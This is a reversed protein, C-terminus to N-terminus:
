LHIWDGYSKALQGADETSRRVTEDGLIEKYYIGETLQWRGDSRWTVTQRLRGQQPLPAEVTVSAQGTRGYPVEPGTEDGCGSALVGVVLLLPRAAPAWGRLRSPSTGPQHANM